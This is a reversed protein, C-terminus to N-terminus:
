SLVFTDPHFTRGMALGYKKLKRYLTARGIGLRKASETMNGGCVKLVQCITDREVQGLKSPARTEHDPLSPRQGPMETPQKEVPFDARTLLPGETLNVAREIWNKLERVNGPWSYARLLSMAEPAIGRITKGLNRSIQETFALALLMIDGSRERLPPVRIEFVNLRYYLDSRFNGNEIEALLDKNAAAMIRVNLYLYSTGGLRQFRKEELVRLVKTQMALSMENVEDLFLTGTRALELKGSKGSRLGGTFTGAEYGFLESEILDHPIAACNIALFPGESWPGANHISQALMEKGTGSEGVLVVNSPSKAVTKALSLTEKIERSQGKIDAFTYHAQLGTVKNVLQQVLRLEKIFLVSGMREGHLNSIPKLSVLCRTKLISEKLILEHDSLEKGNHVANLIVENKIVGQIPQGGVPLTTASIGLIREAAPNLHTIILHRDFIILGTSMSETAAQLYQSALFSKDLEKKLRLQNEIVKAAAVIMGLTHPHKLAVEYAATIDLCAIVTGHEDHIPAAACTALHVFAMYHEEAMMQFPRDLILAMAPANTGCYKEHFSSGAVANKAQAYNWIDGEGLAELVFGNRDTLFVAMELSKIVEFLSKLFPRATEILTKNEKFIEAKEAEGMGTEIRNAFPNVGYARCRRWSLLIEKRPLTGTVEGTSIFQNWAAKLKSRDPLANMTNM